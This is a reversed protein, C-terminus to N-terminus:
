GTGGDVPDRSRSQSRLLMAAFALAALISIEQFFLAEVYDSPTAGLTGANSIMSGTIAVGVAGFLQQATTLIASGAGADRVPLHRLVVGTVIPLISGNGFGFVFLPALFAWGRAAGLSVLVMVIGLGAASTASGAVLVLPASIARMIEPGLVSAVVFGIGIPVFFLGSQWSTLHVISQFYLGLLFFFPIIGIYLAANLFVGLVFGSSKFLRYPILPVSGRVAAAHEHYIFLGIFTGGAALLVVGAPFRELRTPDLLPVFLLVVSAAFLIVGLTDMRVAPAGQDHVLWRGCGLWALLCVPVNILFIPRWGLGLVDLSPIMGGFVQGMVQGLGLSIGFWSLARTREEGLYNVRILALVQPVMVAGSLGQGLRAAVMQTATGALGCCLSTMAFMMLGTRYVRRRGFRDGIRGGTILGLGYVFAYGSIVAELQVSSAGLDRGIQYASVNIVFQDFISLFAGVLVFLLGTM